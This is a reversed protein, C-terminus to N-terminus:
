YSGRPLQFVLYLDEYIMKLTTHVRSNRLYGKKGQLFFLSISLFGLFQLLYLLIQSPYIPTEVSIDAEKPVGNFLSAKTLLLTRSGIRIWMNKPRGSVSGSGSTLPISRSGEIM